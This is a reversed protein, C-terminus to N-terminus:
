PTAVQCSPQVCYQPTSVPQRHLRCPRRDRQAGTADSRRAHHHVAPQPQVRRRQVGRPAQRCGADVQGALLLHPTTHPIHSPTTLPPPSPPLGPPVPRPMCCHRAHATHYSRLYAHHMPRVTHALRAAGGVPERAAALHSTSCLPSSDSCAAQVPLCSRYGRATVEVWGTNGEGGPAGAPEICYIDNFHAFTIRREAASRQVAAAAPPSHIVENTTSAKAVLSVAGQKAHGPKIPGDPAPAPVATSSLKWSRSCGAGM